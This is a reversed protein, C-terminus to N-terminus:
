KQQVSSAGSTNKEVSSPNGTYSVKSAGSADSVLRDTVFVRVSSAGSAEVEATKAKLSEADISSAGSVEVRIDGTEGEVKLKSAGSTDIELSSNKVGALSIKSAGSANISEIDPASILIRLPSESNIRETTEIHLVGGNVETTIYQLLNDDGEVAVSFDKGAIIEVQFVGGVDVGTFDSANREETRIVGSGKIRSQFSFNFIQGTVRGFSFLNAFVVGVIIAIIFILIGIKKM